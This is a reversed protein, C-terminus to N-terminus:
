ENTSGFGGEGRISQSLSEVVEFEAKEVKAFVIQAIRDRFNITFPEESLSALIIKIEGRYDSDITAPSNM